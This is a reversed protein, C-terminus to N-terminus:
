IKEDSKIENIFEKRLELPPKKRKTKGKSPELEPEEEAAKRKAELIM